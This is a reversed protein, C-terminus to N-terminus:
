IKITKLVRFTSTILTYLSTQLRLAAVSSNLTLLGPHQPLVLLPCHCPSIQSTLPFGTANSNQFDDPLEIYWM